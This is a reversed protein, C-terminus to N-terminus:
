LWCNSQVPRSRVWLNGGTQPRRDISERQLESGTRDNGSEGITTQNM